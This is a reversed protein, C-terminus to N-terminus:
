EDIEATENEGINRIKSDIFSWEEDTIEWRQRLIEDNYEGEYKGLDPIFCFKKRLVDQSVVTQLLLFRVIKTFLYSKFSLVEQETSFSCAVLWSETCCEGPRAIRTNGDYYFGVPKTFDTQGAIPAKPILLKWKDLYNNTDIVDESDAFKLGIKQIFWCPIGKNKPKYNTPMGFPKQASIVDTLTKGNKIVQSYIKRVIPLSETNRIFTSFENLQRFSSTRVSNSINIIECNGKTDREWLFYCIGGSM